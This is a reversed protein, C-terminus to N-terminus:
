RRVVAETDVTVPVVHVAGGPVGQAELWRRHRVSPAFSAAVLGEEHARVCMRSFGGGLWRVNATVPADVM